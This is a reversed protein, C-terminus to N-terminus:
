GSGEEEDGRWRERRGVRVEEDVRKKEVGRLDTSRSSKSLPQQTLTSGINDRRLVSPTATSFSSNYATPPNSPVLPSSVTSFYLGPLNM